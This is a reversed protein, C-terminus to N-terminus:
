KSKLYEIWGPSPITTISHNILEDMQITHDNLSLKLEKFEVSQYAKALLPIKQFDFGMLTAMCIDTLGSHNSFCIVGLPLPDPQLPGDGQGGIIGDCLSFLVRQPEKTLTGDTKGFIAVKNLDM